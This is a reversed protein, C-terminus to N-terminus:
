RYRSAFYELFRGAAGLGTHLKKWAFVSTMPLEPHLPKFVVKDSSYLDVAGELTLACLAGSEVLMVSNTILNHAALVDLRSFPFKLWSELESRVQTRKSVAITEGVLDHSEIHDKKALPHSACVLLGWREKTRMRIYDFKAVDVPELLLGFDLVGAELEERVYEASNAYLRFSVKPYLKRFDVMVAALERFSALGGCGISIEGALGEGKTLEDEIKDMLAVVEEARRRLMIGADTLTLSRGRTFLTTGLEAELQAMQRSLTPQTIHLVDAARSINKEEVVTLFYKLVRLEM